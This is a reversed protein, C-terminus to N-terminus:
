MNISRRGSGVLVLTSGAVEQDVTEASLLLSEENSM